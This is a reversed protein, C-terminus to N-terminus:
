ITQNNYAVDGSSEAYDVIKCFDDDIDVGPCALTSQLNESCDLWLINLMPSLNAPALNPDNLQEVEKFQPNISENLKNDAWSGRYQYPPDM